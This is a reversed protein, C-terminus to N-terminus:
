TIHQWRSSQRVLLESAKDPYAMLEKVIREMRAGQSGKVLIMDNERISERLFAIAEGQELFTKISQGNLGAKEAASAITESKEGITILLDVGVSAVKKGVAEHGEIEYSGLELMEGLVVVRRGHEPDPMDEFINLAAEAATPSANYTDDIIISKHIGDILNTRGRPPKYNRLEKGIDVLNFGLHIGVACAELVAYVQHRAPVGPLFIPVTTGKHSVKIGLGIRGESESVRIQEAHIDATIGSGITTVDCRAIAELAAVREDDANLIVRGTKGLMKVSSSIEKVVGDITKFFETHVHAIATIVVIEPKVMNMLYAIDGPHSEGFELVLVKPYSPDFLIKFFARVFVCLWGLINKGHARAGIITLPVGLENNYSNEAKRSSIMGSISQFIAEKASTKGVSGIVAVVRPKHRWLILQSIKM